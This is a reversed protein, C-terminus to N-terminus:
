GKDKLAMALRESIYKPSVKHKKLVMGVLANFAKKNTKYEKVLAPNKEVVERVAADIEEQSVTGKQEDVKRNEQLASIADDDLLMGKDMYELMRGFGDDHMTIPGRRKLLEIANIVTTIKSRSAGYRLLRLAERDFLVLEKITEKSAGYKAAYTGAVESAIVPAETKLGV